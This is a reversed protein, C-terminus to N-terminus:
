VLIFSVRCDFPYLCRERSKFITINPPSSLSSHTRINRFVIKCMKLHSSYFILLYIILYSFLVYGFSAMTLIIKFLIVAHRVKQIFVFTASLYFLTRSRRRFRFCCFDNQLLCIFRLTERQSPFLYNGRFTLLFVSSKLYYGTFTQICYFM